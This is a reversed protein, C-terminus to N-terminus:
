TNMDYNKLLSQLAKSDHNNEVWSKLKNDLLLNVMFSDVIEDISYYSYKSYIALIDYTEDSIDFTVKSKANKPKLFEM